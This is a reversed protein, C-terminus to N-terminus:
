DGGTAETVDPDPLSEAARRSKWASYCRPCVNATFGAGKEAFTNCHKCEDKPM